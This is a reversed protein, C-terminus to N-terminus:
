ATSVRPMSDSRLHSSPNQSSASVANLTIASRSAVLSFLCHCLRRHGCVGIRVAHPLDHANLRRLCHRPSHEGLLHASPPRQCVVFDAFGICYVGHDLRAYPAAPVLAALVSARALPAAYQRPFGARAQCERPIDGGVKLIVWGQLGLDFHAETGVPAITCADFQLMTM